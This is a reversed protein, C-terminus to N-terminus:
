SQCLRLAADWQPLPGFRDILKACSLLSYMPRKAPLPYDATAIAQVHVPHAPPTNRLIEETFGAWSTSGQSTLHYLGGNERWWGHDGTRSQSVIHATVDAITRCWTPSGTQDGVIRLESRDQALRQVTLLFNKGRTGYVWSTRLILHAAGSAAIAQEGALKSKGYINLPNTAATEVYPTTATGDFVYDTSYHVLAAGLRAAEEAMIGPAQANVRMALEEDTEAKDVATYAAPNIILDPQIKRIVDRVQDLDSLDMESRDVAIIHGIGQLSRALEYGVQGNKGTVLIKM